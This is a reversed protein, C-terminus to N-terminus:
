ALSFFRPGLRLEYCPAKKWFAGPGEPSARQRAAAQSGSGRM